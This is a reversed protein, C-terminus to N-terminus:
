PPRVGCGDRAVSESMNRPGRTVGVALAVPESAMGPFFVVTMVGLTVANM